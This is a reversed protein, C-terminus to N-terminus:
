LKKQYNSTKRIYYKRKCSIRRPCRGGSIMVHSRGKAWDYLLLRLFYVYYCVQLMRCQWKVLLVNWFLLLLNIRLLVTTMESFTCKSDVILFNSMVFCKMVLRLQANVPMILHRFIHKVMRTLIRNTIYFSENKVFWYVVKM